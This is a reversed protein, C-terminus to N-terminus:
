GNVSSLISNIIYDQEKHTMQPYLPIAITEKTARETEPLKVKGLMKIYPKELHIAMVGRRTAIGKNLLKQMLGDRSIGKNPRLRLIYTQRNSVYGEPIYPVTILNSKGFAKDYRKALRERIDFIKPFKGMQEIGVAAQIDTLRFNFGVEPYKEHVIKTLNHRAVDSIGMGQNRLLRVMNALSKNNTTIMGGDGTTVLKRPHFSFCTLESISGVRRGKYSSGMACAADEIVFLKHKKAIKNIEDIDCPLGVQHVALIAKTKKTIAKEINASDMNYTKPDIDVFKPKAGTHVIVNASAIFSFSPVIVEDGQRIGKIYLSLFLATTASSTAVAYKAGVYKAVVREFEVVKPGQTVWGSRLVEIVAKEEEKDFFPKTLPIKM